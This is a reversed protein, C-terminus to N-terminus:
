SKLTITTERLLIQERLQAFKIKKDEPICFAQVMSDVIMGLYRIRTVPVLVCKFLGLFYILNCSSFLSHVFGGGCISLQIGADEAVTPTVLVRRLWCNGM